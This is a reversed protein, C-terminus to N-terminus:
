GAFLMVEYAVFLGVLLVGAPRGIRCTTGHATVLGWLLLGLGIAVPVDRSAVAPPVVGPAVLAPMALVGLANFINSGIINGLAFEPHGRRASVVSAALEPLSTGIAVVTLGIVLESVGFTRAVFTAGFVLARSGLLLLLLGLGLWFLAKAWGPEAGYDAGPDASSYAGYDAGSDAGPSASAPSEARIGIPGARDDPLGEVGKEAVGEVMAHVGMDTRTGTEALLLDNEPEASAVYMLIRLAVVLAGLMVVGAVRTLEGSWIVAGAIGMSVLMIPLEWRMARSAIVLPSVLVTVGLVLAINTINSGFANGIAMDPAGSRAAQFAVLMEPASTSFGVILIGVTLASLGAGKALAEAGDVFVDAGRTLVWCGGILAAM